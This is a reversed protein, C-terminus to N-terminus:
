LFLVKPENKFGQQQSTGVFVTCHNARTVGRCSEFRHHTHALYSYSNSQEATHVLFHSLLRRSLFLCSIARILKLQKSQPILNLLYIKIWIVERTDIIHTHNSMIFLFSSNLCQYKILHKTKIACNFIDVSEDQHNLM